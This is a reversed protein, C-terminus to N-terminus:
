SIRKPIDEPILQNENQVRTRCDVLWTRIARTQGIRFHIVQETIFDPTEISDLEGQLSDLWLECQELQRELLRLATSKGFSLAFYLRALIVLRVHRATEVPTEVWRSLEQRGWETLHYEDRGPRNQGPIHEGAILGREELKTLLYYLKSRKVQWIRSLGTMEQLTQHLSYGHQPKRDLLGLLIYEITPPPYERSEM